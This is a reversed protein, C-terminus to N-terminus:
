PACKADPSQLARWIPFRADVLLLSFICCAGVAACASCYTCMWATELVPGTCNSYTYYTLVGRRNPDMIPSPSPTESPREYAVTGGCNLSMIKNGFNNRTCFSTGCTSVGCITNVASSGGTCGPSVFYSLSVSMSTTSMRCTARFSVLSGDYLQVDNCENSTHDALASTRRRAAHLQRQTRRRQAVTCVADACAAALALACLAVRGVNCTSFAVSALQPMTAHDAPCATAKYVTVVGATTVRFCASM